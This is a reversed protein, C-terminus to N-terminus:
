AQGRAARVHKVPDVTLGAIFIEIDEPRYRVARGSIRIFRPGRGITRWWSLTAPQLGLLKAAAAQDLLGHPSLMSVASDRQMGDSGNARAQKGAM